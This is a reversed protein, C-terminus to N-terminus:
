KKNNKGSHTDTQSHCNPCMFRLNEIRNDNHIGNIHDLQLTIPKDMWEGTNGCSVCKYELVKYKLIKAKLSKNCFNVGEVLVEEISKEKSSWKNKVLNSYDIGISDLYKKTVRYANGSSSYGINYLFESYSNSNNIIKILEDKTYKRIDV